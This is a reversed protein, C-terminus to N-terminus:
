NEYSTNRFYLIHLLCEQQTPNKGPSIKGPPMKGQNLILLCLLMCSLFRLFGFFKLVFYILYTIRWNRTSEIGSVDFYYSITKFYVCVLLAVYFM